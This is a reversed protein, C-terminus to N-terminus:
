PLSGRVVILVNGLKTTPPLGYDFSGSRPRLGLEIGSLVQRERLVPQLSAARVADSVVLPGDISSGDLLEAYYSASRFSRDVSAAQTFSSRAAALDGREQSMLGESFWLLSEFDTPHDATINALQMPTLEVDLCSLVGKLLDKELNLISNLRGTVIGPERKCRPFVEIAIRVSDGIIALSGQVIHRVGLLGAMRYANSSDVSPAGSEVSGPRVSADFHGAAQEVGKGREDIARSFLYVHTRDLVTLRGAHSLDSALLFAIGRALAPGPATESFSLFNPVAVGNELITDPKLGRAEFELARQAAIAISDAMLRDLRRQVALRTQKSGGLMERGLRLSVTDDVTEFRLTRFPEDNPDQDFYENVMLRTKVSDRFHWTEVVGEEQGTAPVHVARKEVVRAIRKSRVTSFLRLVMQEYLQRNSQPKGHVRGTLFLDSQRSVVTVDLQAGRDEGALLQGFIYADYDPLPTPSEGPATLTFVRLSGENRLAKAWTSAIHEGLATDNRATHVFVIQVSDVGLAPRPTASRGQSAALVGAFALVFMWKPRHRYSPDAMVLEM